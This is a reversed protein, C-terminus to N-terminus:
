VWYFIDLSWIQGVYLLVIRLFVDLIYVKYSFIKKKVIASFLSYIVFLDKGFYPTVALSSSSALEFISESDKVLFYEWLPGLLVYSIPTLGLYIMSAISFTAILFITSWHGDFNLPYSSYQFFAVVLFSLVFFSVVEFDVYKLFIDNIILLGYVLWLPPVRYDLSRLMYYINVFILFVVLDIVYGVILFSSFFFRSIIYALFISIM